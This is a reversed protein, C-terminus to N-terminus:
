TQIHVLNPCGMTINEPGVHIFACQQTINHFYFVSANTNFLVQLLLNLPAGILADGAAEGLPFLVANRTQLQRTYYFPIGLFARWRWLLLAARTYYLGEGAM